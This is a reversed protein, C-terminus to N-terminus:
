EFLAKCKIDGNLVDFVVVAKDEENVGVVVGGMLVMKCFGCVGTRYKVGDM